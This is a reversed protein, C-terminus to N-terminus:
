TPPHAITTRYWDITRRLGELLDPQLPQFGLWHKARSIDAVSHLVDGPREEAYTAETEIGAAESMMSLLQNVTIQMGIGINIPEGRFRSLDEDGQPETMGAILNADVVHDIYTFDRSAEGDGFIVPQQGTLLMTAFAAVVAAYDSDARQQSGFVNFYRLSVTSMDFCKAWVQMMSEGTLKQQAYPSLPDPHHDERKPMEPQDGYVSSSSAFVVRDVKAKRAAELVRLTGTVNVDHFREPEAISNPVSALAAEHFVLNVGDCIDNMCATNLISANEFHIQEIVESLNELHGSSLDDVVRVEAGYTALRHVIHSGIFGAGGTVLVPRQHYFEHLPNDNSNMIPYYRRM